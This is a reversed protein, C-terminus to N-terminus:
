LVTGAFMTMMLVAVPATSTGPVSKAMSLSFAVASIWPLVVKSGILWCRERMRIEGSLGSAGDVCYMTARSALPMFVSSPLLTTAELSNLMVLLAVGTACCVSGVRDCNLAACSASSSASRSVAM